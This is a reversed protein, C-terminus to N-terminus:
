GGSLHPGPSGQVGHCLDGHRRPLFKNDLAKKLRKKYDKLNQATDIM